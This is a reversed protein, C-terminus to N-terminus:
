REMADSSSTARDALRSRPGPRLPGAIPVTAAGRAQWSALPGTWRTDLWSSHWIEALAAGAPVPHRWSCDGALPHNISLIGGTDAVVTAWEAALHRFDVWEIPGLANAHGSDTTAATARDAGGMWGVVGKM